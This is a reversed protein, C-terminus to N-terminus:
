PVMELTSSYGCDKCFITGEKGEQCLHNTTLDSRKCRPCVLTSHEIYRIITYECGICGGFKTDVVEYPDNGIMILGGRKVRGDPVEIRKPDRDKNLPIRTM